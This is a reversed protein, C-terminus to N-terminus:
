EPFMLIARGKAFRSIIGVTGPQKALEELISIVQDLNFPPSIGLSESTSNVLDTAQEIGLSESLLKVVQDTAIQNSM